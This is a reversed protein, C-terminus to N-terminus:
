VCENKAAIRTQIFLVLFGAGLAVLAALAASVFLDYKFGRMFLWMALPQVATQVILRLTFKKM